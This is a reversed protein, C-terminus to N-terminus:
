VVNSIDRKPCFVPSFPRILYPLIKLPTIRNKSIQLHGKGVDAALTLAAPKSCVTLPVEGAVDWGTPIADPLV